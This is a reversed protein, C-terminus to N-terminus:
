TSLQHVEPSGELHKPHVRRNSLTAVVNPHTGVENTRTGPLGWFRGAALEPYARFVEQPTDRGPTRCWRLPHQPVPLPHAPHRGPKDEEVHVLYLLPGSGPGSM